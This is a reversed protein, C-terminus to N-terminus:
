DDFAEQNATPLAKLAVSAPPTLVVDIVDQMIAAMEIHADPLLHTNTNITATISRAWGHRASHCQLVAASLGHPM